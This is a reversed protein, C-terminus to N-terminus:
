NLGARCCCCRLASAADHAYVPWRILGGANNSMEGSEFGRLFFPVGYWLIALCMPTLFLSFGFM